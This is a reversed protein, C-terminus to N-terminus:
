MRRDAASFGGSAIGTQHLLWLQLTSSKGAPGQPGRPGPIGRQGPQGPPGQRGPPGVLTQRLIHPVNHM